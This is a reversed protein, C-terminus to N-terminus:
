YEYPSFLPIDQKVIQLLFSLALRWVRNMSMQFVIFKAVYLYFAILFMCNLEMCVVILIFLNDRMQACRLGSINELLKKIYIYWFLKNM